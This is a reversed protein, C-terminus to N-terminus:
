RATVSYAKGYCTDTGNTAVARYEYTTGAVVDTDWYVLETTSEVITEWEGDAVRRQIGYSTAQANAKITVKNRGTEASLSLTTNAIKVLRVDDSAKSNLGDKNCVIIYRYTEGTVVATDTWTTVDKDTIVKRYQEGWLGDVRRYRYIFYKGTAENKEWTLTIGTTIQTVSEFQIRDLRFVKVHEKQASTYSDKCAVVSYRYKVGNEAETDTWTTANGDLYVYIAGFPNSTGDANYASRYIGIKDAGPYAKWTLVLGENQNSISVNTVNALRIVAVGETYESYQTTGIMARVTYRYETGSVASRDVYVTNELDAHSKKMTETWVGDILDYRYIWYKTAAANARWKIQVGAPTNSLAIGKVTEVFIIQVAECKESESEGAVAAVAFDYKIGNAVTTDIYATETTTAILEWEGAVNGEYARRYVNYSDVDAATWSLNAGTAGNVANLTITVDIVVEVTFTATFEGATVTITKTGATASDFGTVTFGETIVETTDDSKTV